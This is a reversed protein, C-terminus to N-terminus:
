RAPDTGGTSEWNSPPPQPRQYGIEGGLRGGYPRGHDAYEDRMYTLLWEGVQVRAGSRLMQQDVARGHVFVGGDRSHIVLEDREDHVVVAHEGAVGALRIDSSEDSGITTTGDALDFVDWQLAQGSDARGTLVLRPHGGRHPDHTTTIPRRPRRLFTPALPLLTGPPMLRADPLVSEERRQLRRRGPEWLGRLGQVRIHRSRTLRRQWWRTKVDGLTVLEQQEDVVRLRLGQAALADAVARIAGADRTGAFAGPDDVTLLLDPGSGHLHAHVPEKGPRAVELHLDATFRLATSM